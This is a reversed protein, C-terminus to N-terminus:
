RIRRVAMYSGFWGLLAGIPIIVSLLVPLPYQQLDFMGTLYLLIDLEPFAHIIWALIGWFVLFAGIGAVAGQILGEYYFPRRIYRDTAGVLQMIEIAEKRAVVTLTITNSVILIVAGAIIIMLFTEVMVFMLLFVDFKDLWEHGYDVSEVGSLNQLRNALTRMSEANRYGEAMVVAISRPLPNDELGALLDGGFMDEFEQRADEKSILRTSDVEPLSEITEDIALLDGDSVSDGIYVNMEESSQVSLVMRHAVVTVTGITGFLLLAIAITIIAVATMMRNRLMSRVAVGFASM